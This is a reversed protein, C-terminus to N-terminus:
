DECWNAIRCMAEQFISFIMEEFVSDLVKDVYESRAILVAEMGDFDVYALRCCLIDPDMGFDFGPLM